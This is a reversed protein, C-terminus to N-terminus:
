FREWSEGEQAPVSWFAIMMESGGALRLIGLAALVLVLCPLMRAHLSPALVLPLHEHQAAPRARPGRTGHLFSLARPSGHCWSSSHFLYDRLRQSPGSEVVVIARKLSGGSAVGFPLLSVRAVGPAGSISSAIHSAGTTLVTCIGAPAM